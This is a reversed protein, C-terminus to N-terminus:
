KVRHFLTPKGFAEKTGAFGMIAHQLQETEMSLVIRGDYRFHPINIEKNDIMKSLWEHHVDAVNMEDGDRQIWLILHLPVFDDGCGKRRANAPFMDLYVSEGLQVLHGEYESPVGDDTFTLKYSNEGVAEIVTSEGPEKADAWTGVLNPDFILKDETILPHVSQVYCGALALSVAAVAVVALLRM